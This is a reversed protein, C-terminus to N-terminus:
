FFDIGLSNKREDFYKELNVKWISQSTGYLMFHQHTRTFIGRKSLYPMIVSDLKQSSAFFEKNTKDNSTMYFESDPFYSEIFKIQLPLFYSLHFGNKYVDKTFSGSLSYGPLQAGRFLCRWAKDGLEPFRHVGALNWIRDNEHDYGIFFQGYPMKMKDLKITSFSENNYWGLSKCQDCFTQLKELDTEELLRIELYPKGPITIPKM